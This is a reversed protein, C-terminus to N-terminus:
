TTGESSRPAQQIMQQVSDALLRGAESWIRVHGGVLGGTSVPAEADVLLWSADVGPDHITVALDLSAAWYPAAWGHAPQVAPYVFVDALLLLRLASLVPDPWAASPRFRMWTRLAARGAVGVQQGPLLVPRYDLNAWFPFPPWNPALDEIPAHDEPRGAAPMEATDHDAGPAEAAAWVLAELVARGGQEASVRLSEARRSRRLSEVRLDLRGEAVPNLYHCAYAAPRPLASGALAARLALASVYGGSMGVLRWAGSVEASYAGGGGTLKTDLELDGM